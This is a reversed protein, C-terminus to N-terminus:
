RGERGGQWLSKEGSDHGRGPRTQVRSAEALANGGHGFWDVLFRLGRSIHKEVTNESIAMRAAIERQPLGEVRRLMFAEQTRDPMAGIAEALRRLQDRDIAICEPSPRDDAHELETLDDMTRISVVRARRVHKTIVSRAVQFLYARPFRIEEVTELDALIAYAEQIIDDVDLGMPQRRTLWTRLAQEHPLINRLFWRTRDRDIAHM